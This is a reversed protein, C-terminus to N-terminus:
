VTSIPFLFSELDQLTNSYSACCSGFIQCLRLLLNTARDQTSLQRGNPQRELFSLVTPSRGSRSSCTPFCTHHPAYRPLRLVPEVPRALLCHLAGRCCCSTSWGQKTAGYTPGEGAEVAAARGQGAGAAAAVVGGVQPASVERRPM